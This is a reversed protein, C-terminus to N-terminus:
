PSTRCEGEAQFASPLGRRTRRCPQLLSDGVCLRPGQIGTALRKGQGLRSRQSPRVAPIRDRLRPGQIGTAPQLPNRTRPCQLPRLQARVSKPLGLKPRFALVRELADADGGGHVNSLDYSDGELRSYARDRFAALDFAGGVEGDPTISGGGHVDALNLTPDGLIREWLSDLLAALDLTEEAGALEGTDFLGGGGSFSGGSGPSPKPRLFFYWAGAAAAAGLILKENKKM